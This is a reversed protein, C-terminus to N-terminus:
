PLFCVNLIEESFTPHIDIRVLPIKNIKFYQTPIIAPEIPSMASAQCVNDSETEEIATSM